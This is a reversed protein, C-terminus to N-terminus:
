RKGCPGWEWAQWLVSVIMSKSSGPPVNIIMWPTIKGYTMAELHDCLCAMHWSWKLPTNPELVHWAERVFGSFTKCKARIVEADSALQQREAEAARRAKEQRIMKLMM